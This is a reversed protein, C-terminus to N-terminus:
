ARSWMRWEDGEAAGGTASPPGGLQSIQTPGLTAGPRIHFVDARGVDHTGVVLLPDQPDHAIVEADRKAM